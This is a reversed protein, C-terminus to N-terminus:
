FTEMNRCYSHTQGPSGLHSLESLQRRPLVLYKNINCCKATYCISIGPRLLARLFGPFGINECVFCM